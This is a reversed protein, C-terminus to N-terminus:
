LQPELASRLRLAGEPSLHTGDMYLLAEGDMARCQSADCLRAAADVVPIGAAKLPAMLEDTVRKHVAHTLSEPFGACRSIDWGNFRAVRLCAVPDGPPVPIQDIVVLRGQRAHMEKALSLITKVVLAESTERTRPAGEAHARVIGAVLLDWRTAIVLERIQPSARLDALVAHGFDPCERYMENSPSMGQADVAPCGAKTYLRFRMRRTEGIAGLLPALQAAHSDGWLAGTVPTGAAGVTCSDGPALTGDRRLCPSDQFRQSQEEAVPVRADGAVARYYTGHTLFAPVLAVLLVVSAVAASRFIAKSSVRSRNRFPTEVFRLSLYAMVFSLVVVAGGQWASLPGLNLYRAFVLLPWHWLYLSYSILGIGRLAPVQLLRATRTGEGCLLLIAAGLVPPLASIGPFPTFADYAFVPVLLLAISAMALGERLHHQRPVPIAGMAIMAGLLLEWARTFPLYFNFTPYRYTAAVSLAFSALTLATMIGRRGGPGVRRVLLALLLPFVIYFQEEVALSWTHLLPKLDNETDFYGTQRYFLINSAFVLTALMSKAYALLEPSPLIALSIALCAILLTFLAPLIRRIRREYFAILSARGKEHDRLLTSTILYGSIVFFLDVGVYGGSFLSFGAHFLIVPVIALARLGDIEARYQLFDGQGRAGPPM